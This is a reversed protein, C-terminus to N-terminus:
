SYLIKKVLNNFNIGVKGAALPILSNKTMGPITNIELFWFKNNKDLLFDIRACGKCDLYNWIRLSIDSLKKELNIDLFSPCYYKTKKNKYKSNFSYFANCHDIKISPLVRGCLLGVTYEVGFIYKEVLVSGFKNFCKNLFYKFDKINNAVYIGISSGNNNPKILLPMGLSLIIKSCFLDDFFGSPCLYSFNNKDIYFDPIVNIKFNKLFLKAKFKNFCISSTIVNSGTYPINLFDLLGQITGDEGMKGHLLIFVKDIKIRMFLKLSFYKIDIPFINLGINLLSKLVEYGSRISVYRESYKGGFFVAVNRIKM